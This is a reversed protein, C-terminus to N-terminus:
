PHRVSGTPCKGPRPLRVGGAGPRRTREGARDVGLTEHVARAYFEDLRDKFLSPAPLSGIVELYEAFPIHQQQCFAGAHSLALPLDGLREAVAGASGDDAREARETLYATSTARDFPGVIVPTGFVGLDTRQTTAIVAVTASRQVSDFASKDDVNDLVVLCRNPTSRFWAQVAGAQEGLDNGGLALPEALAALQTVLDGSADLWAVVDFQHQHERVYRAVLQTKGVGGLGRVVANASTHGRAAVAASLLDLEQSRGAFHGTVHPTATRVPFSVVHSPDRLTQLVPWIDKLYNVIALLAEDASDGLQLLRRQVWDAQCYAVAGIAEGIARGIADVTDVACGLATLQADSLHREITNSTAGEEFWALFGDSKLVKMAPRVPVGSVDRLHEAVQKRFSRDAIRESLSTAGAGGVIGWGLNIAEALSLALGM